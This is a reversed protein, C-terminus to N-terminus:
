EGSMLHEKNRKNNEMKIQGIEADTANFYHRGRGKGAKRNERAIWKHFEKTAIENELEMAEIEKQAETELIEIVSYNNLPEKANEISANIFADDIENEIRQFDDDFMLELGLEELTSDTETEMTSDEIKDNETM